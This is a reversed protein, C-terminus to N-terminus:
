IVNRAALDDIAEPSYGIDQLISRTNEGHEPPATTVSPGDESCEFGAITPSLVGKKAIKSPFTGIVSRSRVQESKLAENLIRVRAAPLGVELFLEGM